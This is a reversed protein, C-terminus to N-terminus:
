KKKIADDDTLRSKSRITYDYYRIVESVDLWTYNTTLIWRKDYFTDFIKKYYKM